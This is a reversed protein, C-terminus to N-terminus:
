NLGLYKLVFDPLRDKKVMCGCGGLHMDACKVLNGSMAIIMGPYDPRIEQLFLDVDENCVRGRDDMVELTGDLAILRLDSKREAYVSRAEALTRASLMEVSAGFSRRMLRLIEEEDEVVLITPKNAENM